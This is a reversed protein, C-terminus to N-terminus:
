SRSQRPQAVPVLGVDLVAQRNNPQRKVVELDALLEAKIPLVALEHRQRLGVFARLLGHKLSEGSRAIFNTFYEYSPPASGTLWPRHMEALQEGLFKVSPAQLDIVM